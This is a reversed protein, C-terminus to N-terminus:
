HKLDAPTKESCLALWSEELYECAKPLVPGTGEAPLSGPAAPKRRAFLHSIGTHESIKTGPSLGSLNFMVHISLLTYAITCIRVFPHKETGGGDSCIECSNKSLDATALFDTRSFFYNFYFYFHLLSDIRIASGPLM